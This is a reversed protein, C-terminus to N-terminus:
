EDNLVRKFITDFDKAMAPYSYKLIIGARIEDTNYQAYGAIMDQM